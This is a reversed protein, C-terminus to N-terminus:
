NRIETPDVGWLASKMVWGRYGGAGIRCWDPRCEDLDAIVGNEFQAIVPANAEPQALVPLLEAQVIVTRNGSLLAYHVWGGEGDRDIIRRWHEYEGTIQVPLGARHFVWDVRQSSAPGRRVNVENSRLSVYRPVPLNTSAGLQPGTPEPPEPTGSAPTPPPPPPEAPAAVPAEVPAAGAVAAAIADADADQAPASADPRPPPSPIDSDQAAAPLALCLALAAIQMLISISTVTKM